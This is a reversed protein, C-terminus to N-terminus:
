VSGSTPVSLVPADDDEADGGDGAETPRPEVPALRPRVLLSPDTADDLPFRLSPRPGGPTEPRDGSKPEDGRRRPVPEGREVAEAAEGPTIIRVGETPDVPSGAPPDLNPRSDDAMLGGLAGTGQRGARPRDRGRALPHDPRAGERGPRARGLVARRGER